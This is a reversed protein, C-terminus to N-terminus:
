RRACGRKDGRACAASAVQAISPPRQPTSTCHAGLLPVLGRAEPLAASGYYMGLYQDAGCVIGVALLRVANGGGDKKQGRWVVRDAYPGQELAGPGFSSASKGDSTIRVLVGRMFEDGAGGATRDIPFRLVGMGEGALSSLAIKGPADVWGFDPGADLEVGVATRKGERAPDPECTFSDRMAQELAAGAFGGSLTFVRAGCPWVSTTFITRGGADRMVYHLGERGAVTTGRGELTLATRLKKQTAEVLPDLTRRQETDSTMETTSWNLLVYGAGTLESRIRGGDYDLRDKGDRGAPFGISAGPLQLRVLSLEARRALLRPARSWLGGVAVLGVATVVAARRWMRARADPTLAHVLPLGVVFGGALGGLHAAMDISPNTLGYIVNYGVFFLSSRTLSTLAGPPLARRQRLLFAALVGFIGFIAGSAGASSRDPSWLASACSGALGALLYASAFAVPGLMREVLLGADWLVWMNMLLHIVGVHLFMATALRWWQGSASLRGYNAGWALLSDTTPSLPSVGRAVMIAFVLVNAAILVPTVVVRPTLAVLRARFEALEAAPPKAAPDAEAAPESTSPPAPPDGENGEM